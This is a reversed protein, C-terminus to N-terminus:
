NRLNIEYINNQDIEGSAVRKKLQTLAHEMLDITSMGHNETSALPAVEPKGTQKSLHKMFVVRM